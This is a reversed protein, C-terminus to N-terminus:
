PIAAFFALDAKITYTVTEMEGEVSMDSEPLDFKSCWAGSCVTVGKTSGDLAIHNISLIKKYTPLVTGRGELVWAQMALNEETHHAPIEITFEVTKANGGTVTTRDPLEASDTEQSISSVKTATLSPVGLLGFVLVSYSSRPIHNGKLVCKVSM